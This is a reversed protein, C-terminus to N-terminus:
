NPRILHYAFNLWRKDVNHTFIQVMTFVFPHRPITQTYGFKWLVRKPFHLHMDSGQRIYAFFLSLMEFPCVDHNEKYPIWHVRNTTLKDLTSRYDALSLLKKGVTWRSVRPLGEAYKGNVERQMLTAYGNLQKTNIFGADGLQECLYTLAAAGWAYGGCNAQTWSKAFISCTVLLRTRSSTGVGIQMFAHGGICQKTELFADEKNVGLLEMLLAIVVEKSTHSYSYFDGIILIHLLSSVDDFIITMEGIPFHFTNTEHHWREVFASFLGKDPTEYSCETLPLLGLDEVLRMIEKHPFPPLDRLKREHAVLKLEGRDLWMILMNLLSQNTRLDVVLCLMKVDDVAFHEPAKYIEQGEEVVARRECMESNGQEIIFLKIRVGGFVISLKIQICCFVFQILNDRPFKKSTPSRPSRRSVFLCFFLSICSALPPAHTRPPSSPPLPPPPAPLLPGLPRSQQEPLM